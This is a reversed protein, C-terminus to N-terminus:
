KRRETRKIVVIIVSSNRQLFLCVQVAELFQDTYEGADRSIYIIYFIEM